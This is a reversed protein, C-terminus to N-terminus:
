GPPRPASPPPRVKPEPQRRRLPGAREPLRALETALAVLRGAMSTTMGATARLWTKTSAHGHGRAEGAANVREVRAAIASTLRDRAALLDEAEALCVGASGPLDAVALASAM